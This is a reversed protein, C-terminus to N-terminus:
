QVSRLCNVFLRIKPNIVDARNITENNCMKEFLVVNKGCLKEFTRECAPNHIINLVYDITTHNTKNKEKIQRACENTWITEELHINYRENQDFM